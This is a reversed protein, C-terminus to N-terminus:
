VGPFLIKFQEIAKNSPTLVKLVFRVHHHLSTKQRMFHSNVPLVYHSSMLINQGDLHKYPIILPITTHFPLKRLSRIRVDHSHKQGYLHKYPIIMFHYNESSVFYSMMLIIKVM